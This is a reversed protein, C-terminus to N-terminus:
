PNTEQYISYGKWSQIIQRWSQYEEQDYYGITRVLTTPNVEYTTSNKQMILDIVTSIKDYFLTMYADFDRNSPGIAAVAVADPEGYKKIVGDVAIIQSPQFSVVDVVSSDNFTIGINSCRMGRHIGNDNKEWRECNKIDIDLESSLIELVQKESTIGPTINHLCPASCPEGSM